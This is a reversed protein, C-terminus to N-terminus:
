QKSGQVGAADGNTAKAFTDVVRAYKIPHVEPPQHNKPSRPCAPATSVAPDTTPEVTSPPPGGQCHFAAIVISLLALRWLFLLHDLKM